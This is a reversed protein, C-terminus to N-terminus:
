RSGSSYTLESNQSHGPTMAKSFSSSTSTGRRASYMRTREVSSFRIALWARNMPQIASSRPPRVGMRHLKM